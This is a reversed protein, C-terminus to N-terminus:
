GDPRTVRVDKIPAASTISINLAPSEGDGAGVGAFHQRLHGLAAVRASHSSKEDEREAEVALRQLVYDMDIKTRETREAQAEAIAAAIGVNVLLRPGQTNPHAYGAAEAAKTANSCKLYEAVFREQKATLAM